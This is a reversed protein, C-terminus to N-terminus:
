KGVRYLCTLNLVGNFLSPSFETDLTDSAKLAPSHVKGEINFWTRHYSKGVGFACEVDYVGVVVPHVVGTARVGGSVTSFSGEVLKGWHGKQKAMFDADGWLVMGGLAVEARHGFRVKGHGYWMTGGFKGMGIVSSLKGKLDYSAAIPIEVTAQDAKGEGSIKKTFTTNGDQDFSVGPFETSTAGLFFGLYLQTFANGWLPIQRTVPFHLEMGLELMPVPDGEDLLDSIDLDDRNYGQLLGRILPETEMIFGSAGVGLEVEGAVDSSQADAFSPATLATSLALVLARLTSVM